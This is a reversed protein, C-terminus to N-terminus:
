RSSPRSSFISEAALQMTHLKPGAGQLLFAQRDDKWLLVGPSVEFREYHVTGDAGIVTFTGRATGEIWLAPLRRLGVTVNDASGSVPVIEIRANVNADPWQTLLAQGYVLTVMGGTIDDRVFAADPTGLSSITRVRFPTIAQVTEVPVQRGEFPATVNSPVPGLETVKEVDFLHRLASVAAPAAAAALVAVVAALALIMTRRHRRPDTRLVAPDFAPADADLTRAVARLRLELEHETM